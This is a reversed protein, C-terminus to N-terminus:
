LNEANCNSKIYAATKYATKVFFLKNIHEVIGNIFNDCTM